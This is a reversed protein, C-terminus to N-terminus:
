MKHGLDEVEYKRFIPAASDRRITSVIRDNGTEKGRLHWNDGAQFMDDSITWNIGGEPPVLYHELRAPKDWKILLVRNTQNALMFNYPMDQLRDSAGGCKDGSLCRSILFHIDEPPTSNNRIADLYRKRQKAHWETYQKVWDPLQPSQLIQAPTRYHQMVDYMENEYRSGEKGVPANIKPNGPSTERVFHPFTDELSTAGYRINLTKHQWVIISVAYVFIAGGLIWRTLNFCQSSSASDSRALRAQNSASSSSQRM